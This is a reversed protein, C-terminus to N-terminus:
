YLRIGYTGCCCHYYYVSKCCYILPNSGGRGQKKKHKKKRKTQTRKKPPRSRHCHFRPTALFIQFKLSVRWLMETGSAIVVFFFRFFIRIRINPWSRGSFLEPLDKNSASLNRTRSLCRDVMGVVAGHFRLPAREDPAGVWGRTVTNVFRGTIPPPRRDPTHYM